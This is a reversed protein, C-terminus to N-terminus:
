FAFSHGRQFLHCHCLMVRNEAWVRGTKNAQCDKLQYNACKGQQMKLSYKAHFRLHVDGNSVGPRAVEDATWWVGTRERIQLSSLPCYLSGTGRRHVSRSHTLSKRLLSIVEIPETKKPHRTSSPGPCSGNIKIIFQHMNPHKVAPLCGQIHICNQTFTKSLFPRCHTHIRWYPLLQEEVVSLAQRYVDIEVNTREGLHLM